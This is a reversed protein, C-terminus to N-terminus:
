KKQLALVIKLYQNMFVNTVLKISSMGSVKKKKKKSKKAKKAQEKELLRLEEQERQKGEQRRTEDDLREIEERRLKSREIKKSEIFESDLKNKLAEAEAKKELKRKEAKNQEMILKRNCEEHYRKENKEKSEFNTFIIEHSLLADLDITTSVLVQQIRQIDIYDWFNYGLCFCILNENSLMAEAIERGGEIGINCRWIGLHRLADNKKIINVLGEVSAKGNAVTLPNSDISLYELTSNAELSEGLTACTKSGLLNDNMELKYISTNNKMARAIYSGSADSIDMCSVDVSQIKNDSWLIKALTRASINTVDIRCHTPPCGCEILRFWEEIRKDSSIEEKEENLEIEQLAKRRRITAQTSELDKAEQKERRKSEVYEEYEKDLQEQLLKADDEFFGRPQLNRTEMEHLLDKLTLSNADIKNIVTEDDDEDDEEIQANTTGYLDLLDEFHELTAEDIM